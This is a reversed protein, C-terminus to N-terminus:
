TFYPSPFSCKVSKKHIFRTSYVFVEIQVCNYLTFIVDDFCCFIIEKQNTIGKVDASVCCLHTCTHTHITFLGRRFIISINAIGERGWERRARAEAVWECALRAVWISDYPIEIVVCFVNERNYQRFLTPNGDCVCSACLRRREKWGAGFRAWFWRRCLIRTFKRTTRFLVNSQWRCPSPASVGCLGMILKLSVSM